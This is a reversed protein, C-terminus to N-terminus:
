LSRGVTIGAEIASRLEAEPAFGDSALVYAPLAFAAITVPGLLYGIRVDLAIGVGTPRLSAMDAPAGVINAVGLGTDIVLAGRQQRLAAGLVHMGAGERGVSVHLRIGVPLKPDVHLSAGIAAAGLTAREANPTDLVVAAPGVEVELPGASAAPVLSATALIAAAIM